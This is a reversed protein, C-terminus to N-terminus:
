IEIEHCTTTNCDRALTVKHNLHQCTDSTLSFVTAPIYPMPMLSLPSVYSKIM